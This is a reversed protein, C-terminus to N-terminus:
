RRAATDSPLEGFRRMYARAFHGLSHFGCALAVETVSRSAGGDALMARARELRIRKLYAYPSEGHVQQFYRFTSRVSAGTVAAIAVVDIPRSFNEAIFDEAHVLQSRSPRPTAVEFLHSHNHPLYLLLRLQMLAHLGEILRAHFRGDVVNLEHAAQFAADRIFRRFMQNSVDPQEFRLPDITEEGCLSWLTRRLDGSDIRLILSRYGEPHIERAEVAESMIYGAARPGTDVEMGGLIIRSNRHTQFIVRLRDVPQFVVDLSADSKVSYLSLKQSQVSNSRFAAGRDPLRAAEIRAYAVTEFQNALEGLDGTQFYPFKELLM